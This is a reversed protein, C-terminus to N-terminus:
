PGSGITPSGPLLGKKDDRYNLEICELLERLGNIMFESADKWQSLPIYKAIKLFPKKSLDKFAQPTLKGAEMYNEKEFHHQWEDEGVCISFKNKLLFNFTKDDYRMIKEKQDGSLHLTISLFKGWWFMSRIALINNKEFCAPYDLILYPLLLYNEGKSIKGNIYNLHDPFLYKKVIIEKKYMVQIEGLWDSIKKIIAHKTLIYHTDLLVDTENTSLQLNADKM